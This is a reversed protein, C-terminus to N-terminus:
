AEVAKGVTGHATAVIVAPKAPTAKIDDLIDLGNMDPLQLDLLVVDYAAQKVMAVATAGDGAHEAMHGDAMVFQKYMEALPPTDEVILVRAGVEAQAM